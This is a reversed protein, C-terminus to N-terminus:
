RQQLRQCSDSSSSSPIQASAARSDLLGEDNPPPLPSASYPLSPDNPGIELRRVEPSGRDRPRPSGSSSFRMTRSSVSSLEHAAGPRLGYLIASSM